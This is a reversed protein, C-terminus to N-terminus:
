GVKRADLWASDIVFSFEPGIQFYEHVESPLEAFVTQLAAVRAPPTGIRAIWSRFELAIKWSEVTPETFGAVRHMACWEAIRYNRVHSADRLFELVQLSTDLLPKAPAVVDIVILRGDPAIVRACEALAQPVDAWHHASYRTAVLDFTNSDFPLAEASGICTEIAKDGRTAAERAVVALM